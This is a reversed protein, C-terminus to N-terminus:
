RHGAAIQSQRGLLDAAGWRIKELSRKDMRDIFLRGQLHDYEHQFIRARWGDLKLTFNGGKVYLCM